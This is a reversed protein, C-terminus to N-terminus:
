EDGENSAALWIHKSKAGCLPQQDNKTKGLGGTLSLPASHNEVVGHGEVCLPACAGQANLATHQQLMKEADLLASQLMQEAGSLHNFSLIEADHKLSKAVALNVSLAELVPVSAVIIDSLYGSMSQESLQCFRKLSEFAAPPISVQVRPSKMVCVVRLPVCLKFHVM